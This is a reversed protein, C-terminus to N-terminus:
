PLALVGVYSPQATAVHTATASPLGTNLDIAFPVVSDSGQNAAYLFAGAPDLTFSRPTMGQTSTHGVLSIMGTAPAISYTVINDDGRNSGYVFKGSPHVWVEATTNTGTAGAARTSITQLTTLRGTAPDLALASLTSDTENILYGSTGNPAFALHRPGAGPVTALAPTANPTLTGNTADFRFQAVYDAGLCPVFVYRNSPDALVQHARAGVAITQQAAGIGTTQVPLVAVRGNGYNAVFVYKGSRDVSVHAPGTGGSAVDNVFTLAGSTHDISYAGVRNTAESVAYLRDRDLALFSPSAAFAATTGSPALAGSAPDVSYWAIDPGYGSAYAVLKVVAGDRSSDVTADLTAQNGGCACVVLLIARRISVRRTDIIEASLAALPHAAISRL